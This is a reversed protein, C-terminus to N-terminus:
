SSHRCPRSSLMAAMCTQFPVACRSICGSSLTYASIVWSQMESYRLQSVISPLAVAIMTQDLAVVVQGISLAAFVALIQQPTLDSWGSEYAREKAAIAEAVEANRPEDRHEDSDDTLNDHSASPSMGISVSAVTHMANTGSGISITAADRSLSGTRARAESMISINHCCSLPAAVLRCSCHRNSDPM